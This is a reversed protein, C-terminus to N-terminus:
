MYMYLKIVFHTAWTLNNVYNVKSPISKSSSGPLLPIRPLPSSLPIIIHREQSTSLIYQSSSVFVQEKLALLLGFM